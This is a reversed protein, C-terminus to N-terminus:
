LILLIIFIFIFFKLKCKKGVHSPNQNNSGQTEFKRDVAM